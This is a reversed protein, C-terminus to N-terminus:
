GALTQWPWVLSMCIIWTDAYYDNNINLSFLTELGGLMAIMGLALGVAVVGGFLVSLWSALNFDWVARDDAGRRLFSAVIMLLGGGPALLYFAPSEWADPDDQLYVVLGALAVAGTALGLSRWKNWRRGEAFLTAALSLFLGGILFVQWQAVGDRSLDGFKINHVLTITLGAWAAACALTVPFRLPARMLGSLLNRFPSFGTADTM